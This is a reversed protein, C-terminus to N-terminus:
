FIIELDNMAVLVQGEVCVSVGTYQDMHELEEAYLIETEPGEESLVNPVIELVLRGEMGAPPTVKVFRPELIPNNVVVDGVVFLTAVTADDTVQVDIWAEWLDVNQVIAKTTM